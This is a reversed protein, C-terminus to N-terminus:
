EQEESEKMGEELIADDTLDWQLQLREEWTLTGM